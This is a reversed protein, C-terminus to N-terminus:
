HRSPRPRRPSPLPRRHRRRGASEPTRWFERIGIVCAPIVDSSDALFAEEDFEDGFEDEFDEDRGFLLFPVLAVQAEPDEILPVWADPRLM